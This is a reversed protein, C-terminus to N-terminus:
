SKKSLERIIDDIAKESGDEIFNTLALAEEFIAGAKKPTVYESDSLM